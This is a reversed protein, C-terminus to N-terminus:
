INSWLNNKLRFNLKPYVLNKGRVKGDKREKIRQLCNYLDRQDLDLAPVLWKTTNYKSHACQIWYLVVYPRHSHCHHSVKCLKTNLGTHGNKFVVSHNPSSKSEILLIHVIHAKSLYLIQKQQRLTKLRM